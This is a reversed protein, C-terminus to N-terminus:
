ATVLYTKNLESSDVRILTYTRGYLVWQLNRRFYIRNSGPNEVGDLSTDAALKEGSQEKEWRLVVTQPLDGQACNIDNRIRPQSATFRMALLPRTEDTPNSVTARLLSIGDRGNLLQADTITLWDPRQHEYQVEAFAVTWPAARGVNYYDPDFVTTEWKFSEDSVVHEYSVPGISLRLRDGAEPRRAFELAVITTLKEPSTEIASSVFNARARDDSGGSKSIWKV